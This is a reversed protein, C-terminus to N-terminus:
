RARHAAPDRVRGRHGAGRPGLRVSPVGKWIDSSSGTWFTRGGVAPDPTIAVAGPAGGDPASPASGAHRLRRPVLPRGCPQTRGSPPPGNSRRRRAARSRCGSRERLPGAGAARGRVEGPGRRRFRRRGVPRTAAPVAGGFIERSFVPALTRVLPPINPVADAVYLDLFAKWESLIQPAFGDAHLGNYLTFRTVPARDFRDLLDAFSPGTQEDQWASALFAAADIEGAFRRIDLPGAVDDTYYPHDLAKQVM